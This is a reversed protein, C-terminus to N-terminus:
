KLKFGELFKILDNTTLIEHVSTLQQKYIGIISDGTDWKEKEETNLWMVARAQDKIAKLYEIGSKNKNNRADGLFLVITNKDVTNLHHEHFQQLAYHYNSYERPVAGMAESIATDLPQEQFLDSVDKLQRIFVYSKVGGTFVSSLEYVFRLLLRASKSCSGSVDMICVIKTRKLKPKEFYLKMPVGFTKLSERMTKKYNFQKHRHRQMQRSIKTKFKEANAKIVATLDQYQKESMEEITENLVVLPNEARVANMGETFVPRHHIAMEKEIEKEVKTISREISQIENNIQRTKLELQQQVKHIEEQAQIPIQKAQELEKLYSKEQKELYDLNRSLMTASALYIDVWSSQPDSSTLQELMLDNLAEKIGEHQKSTAKHLLPLLGEQNFCFLNMLMERTKDDYKSVRYMLGDCNRQIFDLLEKENPAKKPKYNLNKEYNAKIEAEQQKALAEAEALKQELSRQQEEAERKAQELRRENEEKQKLQEQVRKEVLNDKMLDVLQNKSVDALAYFFTNFCDEFAEYQAQNKAILPKLTYMMEKMDFIDFVPYLKFFKLLADTSVAFDQTRLYHVFRVMLAKFRVDVEDIEKIAEFDLGEYVQNLQKIGSEITAPAPNKVKKKKKAM